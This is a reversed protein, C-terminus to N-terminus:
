PASQPASDDAPSDVEHAPQSVPTASGYGPQQVEVPTAMDTTDALGALTKKVDQQTIVEAKLNRERVRVDLDMLKKPLNM